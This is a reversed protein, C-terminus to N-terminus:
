ESRLAALPNVRAARRAPVYSAALAVLALIVTITAFTAPDTPSVAFLLGSMMRTLALAGALGIGVGLLALTMGEGVILALVDGKQAGLAVRVGIEHTRQTVSYAVLGYIGVSALVLALAAFLGLLLMNFRRSSLSEAIRQEMTRVEAIPQDADIALIEHRVAAVEALPDSAARIVIDLAPM